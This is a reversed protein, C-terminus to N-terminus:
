DEKGQQKQLEINLEKIKENMVEIDKKKELIQQNLEEITHEASRIADNCIKIRRQLSAAMLIDTVNRIQDDTIHLCFISYSYVCTAYNSNLFDSFSDWIYEIRVRDLEYKGPAILYVYQKNVYAIKRKEVHLNEDGDSYVYHVEKLKSLKSPDITNRAM